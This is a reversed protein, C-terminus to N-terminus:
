KPLRMPSTLPVPLTDMESMLRTFADIPVEGLLVGGPAILRMSKAEPVLCAQPVFGLRAFLRQSPNFDEVYISVPKGAADAEALVRRLVEGGIGRNRLGAAVACFRQTPLRGPKSSVRRSASASAYSCLMASWSRIRVMLASDWRGLASPDFELAKAQTHALEQEVAALDLAISHLPNSEDDKAIGLRAAGHACKALPAGDDIWALM